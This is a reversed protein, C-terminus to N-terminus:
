ETAKKKKKKKPPAGADVPASASASVAPEASASASVAPAGADVAHSGLAKEIHDKPIITDTEIPWDDHAPGSMLIGELVTGKVVVTVYDADDVKPEIISHLEKAMAVRAPTELQSLGAYQVIVLVRHDAITAGVALDKKPYAADAVLGTMVSDALQKAPPATAYTQGLALSYELDSYAKYEASDPPPPKATAVAVGILVVFAAIGAGVVGFPILWGMRDLWPMPPKGGPYAAIMEYHCHSCNLTLRQAFSFLPFFFFHGTKYQHRWVM